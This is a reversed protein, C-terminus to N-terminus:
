ACIAAPQVFSISRIDAKQAMIAIGLLMRNMLSNPRGPAAMPNKSDFLRESTM